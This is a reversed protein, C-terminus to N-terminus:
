GKPGCPVINGNKDQIGCWENNVTDQIKPWMFFLYLSVALLLIVEFVFAINAYKKDKKSKILLIYPTILVAIILLSVASLLIDLILISTLLVEAVVSLIVMAFVSYVITILIGLSKPFNFEKSENEEILEKEEIKEEEVVKERIEKQEEKTMEAMETRPTLNDYKSEVHEVIEIKEQKKTDDLIEIEDKKEM